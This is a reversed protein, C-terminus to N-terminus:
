GEGKLGVGRKHETLKLSTSPPVSDSPSVFSKEKAENCECVSVRRRASPAALPGLVSSMEVRLGRFNVPSSLEPM